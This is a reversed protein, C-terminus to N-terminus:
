RIQDDETTGFVAVLAWRMARVVHLAVDHGCMPGPARPKGCLIPRVELLGDAQHSSRSSRMSTATVTMFRKPTSPRRRGMRKWVYCGKGTPPKRKPWPMWRAMLAGRTLSVPVFTNL